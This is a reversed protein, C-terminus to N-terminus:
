RQWWGRCRNSGVASSRLDCTTTNIVQRSLVSMVITICLYCCSSFDRSMGARRVEHRLAERKGKMPRNMLSPNKTEWESV